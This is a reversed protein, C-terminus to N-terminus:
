GKSTLKWCLEELAGSSGMNRQDCLVDAPHEPIIRSQGTIPSLLLRLLIMALYCFHHKEKKYLIHAIYWARIQMPETCEAGTNKNEKCHSCNSPRHHMDKGAECLASQWNEENPDPKKETHQFDTNISPNVRRVENVSPWCSLVM